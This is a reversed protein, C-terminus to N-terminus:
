FDSVPGIGLSLGQVSGASIRGALDRDSKIMGSESIYSSETAAKVASPLAYLRTLTEVFADEPIHCSDPKRYGGGLRSLPRYSTAGPRVTTATFLSLGLQSLLSSDDFSDLPVGSPEPRAALFLGHM